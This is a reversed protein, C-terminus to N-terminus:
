LPSGPYGENGQGSTDVFCGDKEIYLSGDAEKSFYTGVYESLDAPVPEALEYLLTDGGATLM